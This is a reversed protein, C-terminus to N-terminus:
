RQRWGRALTQIFVATYHLKIDCLIYCADTCKTTTVMHHRQQAASACFLASRYIMHSLHGGTAESGSCCSCCFPSGRWPPATEKVTHHAPDHSKLRPGRRETLECSSEEEGGYCGPPQRSGAVLFVHTGDTPTRSVHCLLRLLQSRVGCHIVVDLDASTHAQTGNAAKALM